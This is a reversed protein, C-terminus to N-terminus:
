SLEEKIDEITKNIDVTNSSDIKIEKRESYGCQCKLYFHITARDGADILEFMKNEVYEKAANRADVVGKEFEPDKRWEQYQSYPVKLTTYTKYANGRNERLKELFMEPTIGTNYTTGKPRAM